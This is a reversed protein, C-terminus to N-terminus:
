GKWTCSVECKLKLCPTKSVRIEWEWEMSFILFQAKKKQDCFRKPWLDISFHLKYVFMTKNKKENNKSVNALECAFSSFSFYLIDTSM